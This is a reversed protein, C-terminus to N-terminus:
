RIGRSNASCIGWGTFRFESEKEWTSSVADQVWARQTSSADAPNEWCVACTKNPWLGNELTSLGQTVQGIRQANSLIGISIIVLVFCTKKISLSIKDHINRHIHNAPYTKM